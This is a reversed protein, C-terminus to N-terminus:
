WERRLLVLLRNALSVVAMIVGLVVQGCLFLLVAALLFLATSLVVGPAIPLRRSSRPALLFGWLVAAVAPLGLGVVWRMATGPFCAFGFYSLAARMCLEVLFSIAQNFSKLM